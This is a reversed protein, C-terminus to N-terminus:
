RSNQALTRLAASNLAAATSTVPHTIPIRTDSPDPRSTGRSAAFRLIPQQVHDVPHDPEGDHVAVHEGALRVTRSLAIMPNNPASANIAAVITSNWDWRASLASVPSSSDAM